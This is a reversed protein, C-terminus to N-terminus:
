WSARSLLGDVRGTRAVLTRPLVGGSVVRLQALGEPGDPDLVVLGSAGTALGINAAPWRGWWAEITAPDTTADLFGRGGDKKAIAPMKSRPRLPFAHWGRAAYQLAAELLDNPM